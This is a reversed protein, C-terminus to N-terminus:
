GAHQSSHAGSETGPEVRPLVELLVCEKRSPGAQPSHQGQSGLMKWEAKSPFLQAHAISGALRSSGLGLRSMMMAWSDGRAQYTNGQTNFARSALANLM